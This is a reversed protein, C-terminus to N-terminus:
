ILAQVRKGSASSIRSASRSRAAEGVAVGLPRRMSVASLTSPRSPRMHLAMAAIPMPAKAYSPSGKWRGNTQADQAGHGLAAFAGHLGSLCRQLARRGDAVCGLRRWYLNPERSGDHGHLLLLREDQNRAAVVFIGGAQREASEIRQHM